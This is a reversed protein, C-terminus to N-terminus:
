VTKWGRKKAYKDLDNQAQGPERRWPLSTMGHWGPKDPRKYRGKFTDLGIGPMIRYQWGREDTYTNQM